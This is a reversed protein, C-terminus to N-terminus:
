KYYEIPITIKVKPYTMTKSPCEWHPMHEVAKLIASTIMPHLPEEVCPESVIGATDVFFTLYTTGEIGEKALLPPYIIHKDLWRMLQHHGGPFTPMEQVIDDAIFPTEEKKEWLPPPVEETIPINATTDIAISDTVVMNENLTTIPQEIIKQPEDIIVPVTKPKQVMTKQAPPPPAIYHFVFAEDRLMNSSRLQEMATNIDQEWLHETLKNWVLYVFLMLVFVIAIGCLACANRKGAEARLRYAGYVKNKNEFILDCWQKSVLNFNRM